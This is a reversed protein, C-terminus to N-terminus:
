TKSRTQNEKNELPLTIIFESGKGYESAVEIKGQHRDVIQKTLYLGLGLGNIGKSNEARYFRTFLQRKQDPTLGIGEDRVGIRVTEASLELNLNIANAAPSYKIANTMLNLVAQEIRQKDGKIIAPKEGVNSVIEHTKASYSFTEAIEELMERLDFVELNFELIGKEIRSMNLIDEVLNNLKEVQNLAKNVFMGNTTDTEQKSLLQLYGKMTTLPTKLEHSALAIFEDKKDSLSKVKEFLRSNDLSVAAQAAINIVLQEHEKSFMARKPHGYLLGGIVDGTKSVVPIAMYSTVDFHGKPLGTHPANKGYAPHQHIDDVRVVKKDVFTPQFMETHRPMGLGEAANKPVGSLTFLRFGKGEADLTNYFFAGFAAGTLNTTVDTVRQLIGKLDLNETISKGVTNLVELSRTYKELIEHAEVQTTIDRAVKSAGTVNGRSDKTPSVTLSITINKGSKHKRVTEFHDLKEGKKIKKLIVEEEELREEPILMTVPQGVAEAESYGFIAEAGPNWSMIIGDLNKSIIADDSSEVIASLLSTKEEVKLRDSINRAVKSAGVVEGAANKVPSVTLSIPIERGNKDLRITEIHDVRKGIRINHLIEKEEELRDEPILCTISKGLIEAETYGFIREAGANWSTVIGNLDKSVIADDSSEVIASLTAQKIQDQHSTDLLTFAAGCINGSTDYRAQPYILINKYTGDPRCIRAETDQPPNGTKIAKVAPSNELEMLSGDPYYMKWSGCWYDKGPIPKRGWLKAAALNFYTIAGQGNCIYFAIPANDLLHELDDTHCGLSPENDYEM